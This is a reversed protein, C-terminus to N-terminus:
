KVVHVTFTQSTINLSSGDNWTFYIPIDVTDYIAGKAYVNGNGDIDLASTYKTHFECELTVDQKNYNEGYCTILYAKYPIKEGSAAKVSVNDEMEFIVTEGEVYVNIYSNAGNAATATIKTKGLFVGKVNGNKDVKAIKTDASKFTVTQDASSPLVKAKLKQTEGMTLQMVGPDLEVGTASPTTTEFGITLSQTGCTVDITTKGVKSGPTVAGTESVKVIKENNSHYTIADTTNAPKTVINLNFPSSGAEVKYKSKPSQLGECPIKEPGPDPTFVKFIDGTASAGVDNLMVLNQPDKIKMEFTQAAGGKRYTMTLTDKVMTYTGVIETIEGNRDVLTFSADSNLTIYSSDIEQAVQTQNYYTDYLFPEGRIETTTFYSNSRSGALTTKLILTDNDRIEFLVTKYNGVGSSTVDLTCVNEKVSWSGTLEYYGEAFNDRMVFSGDKGFWIQSHDENGFQDVTNYYTRGALDYASTPTDEHTCGTLILLLTMIATLLVRRKM